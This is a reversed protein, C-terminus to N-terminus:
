PRRRSWNLPSTTSAHIETLMSQIADLLESSVQQIAEYTREIKANKRLIFCRTVDSCYGHYRVGYDVLLMGQIKANGARYHPFRANRATAVIPEFAPEVGRDVTARLLQKQVDCERMGELIELDELISRTLSTAKSIYAVENERKRMRQKSLQESAPEITCFAQIKRAISFPLSEEDIMVKKGKLYRSLADIPNQYTVVRGRFRKRALAENMRSVLLTRSGNQEIFFAHDIDVGSAYYFNADAREGRYLLLLCHNPKM